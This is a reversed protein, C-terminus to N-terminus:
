NDKVCNIKRKKIIKFLKKKKPPPININNRYNQTVNIYYTTQSPNVFSITNTIQPEFYIMRQVSDKILGVEVRLLLDNDSRLFGKPGFCVRGSVWLGFGFAM